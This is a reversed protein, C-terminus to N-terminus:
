DSGNMSKFTNELFSGTSQMQGMLTNVANFQRRWTEEMKAIREDLKTRAETIEDLKDNLGTMRLDLVEDKAMVRELISDLKSAFGETYNLTFASGAAARTDFTLGRSEGMVSSIRYPDEGTVTWPSTENPGQVTAVVNVQDLGSTGAAVTIGLTVDLDKDINTFEVGSTSGTKNSTFVFKPDAETRDVSVTVSSGAAIFASDLNIQNQMESALAEASTYTQQTLNIWGSSATGDLSLQFSENDKDIKVTDNLYSDTAGTYAGSTAEQGATTVTVAYAGTATYENASVFGSLANDAHGSKTFLRAVTDFNSSLMEDLKETDLEMKGYRDKNVGIDSLTQFGSPLLSMADSVGLKVENIISRMLSESQLAGAAGDSYKSYDDFVTMLANYDGVFNTIATKVTETDHAITVTHAVGVSTNKLDLTLGEVVNSLSNTESTIALGNVTAAANTAASSQAMNTSSSNFTFRSLGSSDTNNGDSDGSAVVEMSHNSGTNTSSFVMRYGTGDNVISAKVGQDKANIADRLGVLSDNSSDITISMETQSPDSTFGNYTDTGADYDTSGFRFTLTGTGISDSTNAFAGSYTSHAKALSTVEVQYSGPDALEGTTNATATFISENSSTVTRGQLKQLDNIEGLLGKFGTMAEQVGTYADLKAQFAEQKSDLRSTAPARQAEALGSVMATVDFTGAGMASILNNGLNTDAM